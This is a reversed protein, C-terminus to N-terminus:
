RVTSFLSGGGELQPPADLLEALRVRWLGRLAAQTPWVLWGLVRM